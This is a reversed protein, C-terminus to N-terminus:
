KSKEDTSEFGISSSILFSESIVRPSVSSYKPFLSYIKRLRRRERLAM